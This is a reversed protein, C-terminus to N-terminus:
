EESLFSRVWQWDADRQVDFTRFLEFQERPDYHIIAKMAAYAERRVMNEERSNLVAQALLALTVQDKTDRKLVGLADAASARVDEDPDHELLSCAIQWYEQLQWYRTLIELAVMRWYPSDSKLLAEVEPRAKLFRHQGFKQLTRYLEADQLQNQQLLLLSNELQQQIAQEMQRLREFDIAETEFQLHPNDQRRLVIRGAHGHSLDGTMFWFHLEEVTHLPVLVFFNETSVSLVRQVLEHVERVTQFQPGVLAYLILEEKEQAHVVEQVEFEGALDIIDISLGRNDTLSYSWRGEYAQEVAEKLKRQLRSYWELEDQKVRDESVQKQEGKM